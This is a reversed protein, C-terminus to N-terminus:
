KAEELASTLDAIALAVQAKVTEDEEKLQKEHWVLIQLHIREIRALM